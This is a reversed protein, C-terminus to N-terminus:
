ILLENAAKSYISFVNNKLSKAEFFQGYTLPFYLSFENLIRANRCFLTQHNEEQVSLELISILTQLCVIVRYAEKLTGFYEFHRATTHLIKSREFDRIDEDSFYLPFVSSYFYSILERIKEEQGLTSAFVVRM